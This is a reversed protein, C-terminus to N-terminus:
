ICLFSEYVAAAVIVPCGWQWMKSNAVKATKQSSKKEGVTMIGLHESAPKRAHETLEFGLTQGVWHATTGPQEWQRDGPRDWALLNQSTAKTNLLVKSGTFVRLRAISVLTLAWLNWSNFRSILLYTYTRLSIPVKLSCREKSPEAINQNVLVTTFGTTLETLRSQFHRNKFKALASLYRCTVWIESSGKKWWCFPPVDVKCAYQSYSTFHQTYLAQYLGPVYHACLFLSAIAQLFQICLVELSLRSWQFLLINNM